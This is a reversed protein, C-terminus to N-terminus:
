KAQDFMTNKNSLNAQLDQGSIKIKLTTQVFSNCKICKLLLSKNFQVRYM